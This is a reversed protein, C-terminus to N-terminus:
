SSLTDRGIRERPDAGVAAAVRERMTDGYLRAKGFGPLAGAAEAEAQAEPFNSVLMPAAGGGALSRILEIGSKTEFHGVLVRNILLVDAQLVEGALAGADNVVVVDAGPVISGVASRLAFADPWCHGVLAIRPGM